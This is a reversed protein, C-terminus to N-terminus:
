SPLHNGLAEADRGISHVGRNVQVILFGVVVPAVVYAYGVLADIPVTALVVPPSRGPQLAGTAGAAFKMIVGARFM